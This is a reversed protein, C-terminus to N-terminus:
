KKIDSKSEHEHFCTVEPIHYGVLNQTKMYRNIRNWLDGDSTNIIGTQDFVDRYRFPIKNFNICSASRIINGAQPYFPVTPDINKPM